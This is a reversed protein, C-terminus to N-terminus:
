GKKAPMAEETALLGKAYCAACPLHFSAERVLRFLMSSADTTQRPIVVEHGCDLTMEAARQGDAPSRGSKANSSRWVAM